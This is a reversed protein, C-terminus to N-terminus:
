TLQVSVQLVQSVFHMSRINEFFVKTGRLFVNHFSIQNGLCSLYTSILKKTKDNLYLCKDIRIVDM